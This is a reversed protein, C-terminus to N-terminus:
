DMVSSVDFLIGVVAVKIKSMEIPIPVVVVIITDIVVIIVTIKSVIAQLFAVTAMLGQDLIGM